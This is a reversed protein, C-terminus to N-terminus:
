DWGAAQRNGVFFNNAGCLVNLACWPWDRSMANSAAFCLHAMGLAYRIRGDKWPSRGTIRTEVNVYMDGIKAM